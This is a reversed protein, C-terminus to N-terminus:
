GSPLQRTRMSSGQPPAAGTALAPSAGQAVRSRRRSAAGRGCPGRPRRRTRRELLANLVAEETAEVTANFFPDLDADPLVREDAGLAPGRATTSFALFPGARGPPGPPHAPRPRAAPRDRHLQRGPGRTGSGSATTSTSTSTATSTGSARPEADGTGSAPVDGRRAQTRANLEELESIRGGDV